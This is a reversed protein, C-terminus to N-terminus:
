GGAQKVADIYSLGATGRQLELAKAHIELAKPDVTYGPPAAFSVQDDGEDEDDPGAAEGFSVVPKAGDFLKRFAAVPTMEGNAEGFSVTATAELEDMVGVVLDKGAPALKGAAILQEAFAVNGAHLSSKITAAATREREDAAALRDAAEQERRTLEAEREAFDVTDTTTKTMITEPTTEITVAGGREDESEAFSVTGLGKVAPAAAGLFGIHKLYLSGPKPNGRGDPLYFRGSVKSYRGARVAEAFAPELKDMDPEAVLHGDEFALSKAWGYAPADLKPHGVVLPAPDTSADYAEAAQRLAEESFDVVTGEVSTFRGPPMIKIRPTQGM